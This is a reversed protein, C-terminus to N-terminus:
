LPKAARLRLDGVPPQAYPIGLFLDQEWNPLTLGVLNGDKISVKPAGGNNRGELPAGCIATAFAATGALLLSSRM